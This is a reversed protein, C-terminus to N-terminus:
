NETKVPLVTAKEGTRTPAVKKQAVRKQGTAAVPVEIPPAQRLSQVIRNIESQTIGAFNRYDEQLVIMEVGGDDSYLDVLIKSQRVRPDGLQFGKYTQNHLNFIGTEAAKPLAMSKALLLLEDKAGGRRVSAWHNMHDPTFEYLTRGFSYDSRMTERGLISELDKASVSLDNPLDNVWERSRVARIIFRLGSRFRLDVKSKEAKDKPYLTTKSEDLDTWPVELEYGFYSLKTGSATSISQDKLDTPVISAVAPAKKAAYFSIAVPGIGYVSVLVVGLAILVM